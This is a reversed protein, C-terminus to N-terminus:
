FGRSALSRILLEIKGPVDDLFVKGDSNPKFTYPAGRVVNKRAATSGLTLSGAIAVPLNTETSVV